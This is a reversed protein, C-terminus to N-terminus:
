GSLKCQSAMSIPNTYRAAHGNVGWNKSTSVQSHCPSLSKIGNGGRVTHRLGWGWETGAGKEVHLGWGRGTVTPTTTGMGVAVRM